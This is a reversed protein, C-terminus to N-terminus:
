RGGFNEVHKTGKLQPSGRPGYQWAVERQGAQERQRM